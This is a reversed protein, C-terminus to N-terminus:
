KKPFNLFAAAILSPYPPIYILPVKKSPLLIKTWISRDRFILYASMFSILRSPCSISSSVRVVSILRMIKFCQSYSSIIEIEQSSTILYFEHKARSREFFAGRIKSQGASVSSHCTCVYMVLSELHSLALHSRFLNGLDLTELLWHAHTLCVSERYENM